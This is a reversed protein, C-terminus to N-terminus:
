QIGCSESRCVSRISHGRACTACASLSRPGHPQSLIVVIARRPRQWDGGTSTPPRGGDEIEAKESHPRRSCSGGRTPCTNPMLKVSLTMPLQPNDIVNQNYDVARTGHLNGWGEAIVMGHVEANGGLVFWNVVYVIGYITKKLGTQNFSGILKDSQIISM